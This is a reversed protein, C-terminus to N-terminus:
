IPSKSNGKESYDTIVKNLIDFNTLNIKGNIYDRTVM